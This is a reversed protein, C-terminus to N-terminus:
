TGYYGYLAYNSFIILIIRMAIICFYIIEGSTLLFVYFNLRQGKLQKETPFSCNALITTTMSERRRGRARAGRKTSVHNRLPQAREYCQVHADCRVQKAVPPTFVYVSGRLLGQTRVVAANHGCGSPWDPCFAAHRSGHGGQRDASSLRAWLGLAGRTKKWSGREHRAQRPNLSCHSVALCKGFEMDKLLWNLLIWHM